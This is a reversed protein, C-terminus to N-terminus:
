KTKRKAWRKAIADRYHKTPRKKNPGKAQGGKAGIAAMYATVAKPIDNM